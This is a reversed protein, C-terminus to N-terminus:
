KQIKVFYNKQIIIKSIEVDIIESFGLFDTTRYHIAQCPDKSSMTHSANVPDPFTIDIM